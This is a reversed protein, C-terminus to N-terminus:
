AGTSGFGGTRVGSVEDDVTIGYPVFVGQMFRDGAKLDIDTCATMKAMIHGENDANAYDSDIIGTTNSLRLGYRFGLGSRPYLLLVYGPDIIARIGTCIPENLKWMDDWEPYVIHDAPLFFDYGASGGTARRPLVIKEWESCYKDYLKQYVDDPFAGKDLKMRSKIYQELSVKEFKAVCRM